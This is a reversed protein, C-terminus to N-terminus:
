RSGSLPIWGRIGIRVSQRELARMFGGPLAARSGFDYNYYAYTLSLAYSRNFAYSLASTAAYSRYGNGTSNLQLQGNVYSLDSSLELRRSLLGSVSFGASDVFFPDPFVEIFQVGRTYRGLMTWTRGMEHQLGVTGVARNFTVPDAGVSEQTIRGVGGTLNLTTRRSFSLPKRYGGGLDLGNVVTRHRAASGGYLSERYTYGIRLNTARTFQRTYAAGATRVSLDYQSGPSESLRYGGNAIFASRSSLERNYQVSSDSTIRRQDSVGFDDAPPRVAGLDTGPLVGFRFLSATAARQIVQIRTRRGAEFDLALDASHSFTSRSLSSYYRGDSLTNASVTLKPGIRNYVLGGNGGGYGGGIGPGGTQGSQEALLDDDYGGYGGFLVALGPQAPGVGSGGFMGRYPRQVDQPQTNGAPEQAGTMVPANGGTQGAAPSACFCVFALGAALLPTAGVTLRTM